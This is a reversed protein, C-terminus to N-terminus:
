FRGLTPSTIEGKLALYCECVKKQLGVLDRIHMRGRVYSILGEAQLKGAAASLRSRSVGLMNALTQQSIPYVVTGTLDASMLLLRALRQEASHHANCAVWQNVLNWQAQMCKETLDHFRDHDRFERAARALEATFGRGPVQMIIRPLSVRVGFLATVGVVSEHGYMGVAVESGSRLALGAYALGEEIFVLEQVRGAARVIQRGLQLTVPSLSLRKVASSDLNRLVDNRFPVEFIKAMPREPTPPHKHFKNWYQCHAHM